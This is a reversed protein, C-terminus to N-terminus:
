VVTFEENSKTDKIRCCEPLKESWPLYAGFLEPKSKFDVNPLNKFLHTLYQFVNLHNAKATEVISYAIARAETRKPTDAFLWSRRKHAQSCLLFFQSKVALGLSALALAV